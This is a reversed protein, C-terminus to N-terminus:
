SSDRFNYRKALRIERDQTTLYHHLPTNLQKIPEFNEDKINVLLEDIAQLTATVVEDRYLSAKYTDRVTYKVESYIDGGDFHENAKLLVVGWEKKDDRIVHDLSHHGKDGRLGPHLIYTPTKTFVKEPIFKKLYPCIIIDPCFRDVEDIISEDDTAYQVCLTHGMDELKVFVSQTLSNFGSVVLLIKM